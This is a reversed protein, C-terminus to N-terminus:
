ERKGQVPHRQDRHPNAVPEHQGCRVGEARFGDVRCPKAGLDLVSFDVHRRRLRKEHVQDDVSEGEADQVGQAAGDGGARVIDVQRREEGGDNGCRHQRDQKECRVRVVFDPRFHSRRHEREGYDADLQDGENGDAVDRQGDHLRALKEVIGHEGDAADREHLAREDVRAEDHCFAQQEFAEAHRQSDGPRGEEVDLRNREASHFRLYRERDDDRQKERYGREPHTRVISYALYPAQALFERRFLVVVCNERQFALGQGLM